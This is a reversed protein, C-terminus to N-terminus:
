RKGKLAIIPAIVLYIASSILLAIGVGFKDAFHGILTATIAAFVTQIQSNVSLTSALISQDFKESLYGVGVPKRLNELIFVPIFFLISLIIWEKFYLAGCIAGFSLGTILTINLPLNRKEKFQDSFRGANRAATSTLLYLFFYVIGIIIAAKQKSELYTLIPISIALTKLLTQLYDKAGTFYGSFVSLNLVAKIVSWHKSTLIFRASLEKLSPWIDSIKRNGSEGDLEKPYSLMLILDLIYPIITYLFVPAYNTSFYVIIAALISSVASGFQSWSRTHGYYHVKLHVLDRQSLYSFIMAKHTGSRFADGISYFIMALAFFWYTNALNFITFCSIYAIFCFVMTKRRGIVDAMIGSPIELINRGMERIAYLTGIQLFTMGKELLFLILFPEYFKQNKLFGYLCFKYYQLNKPIKVREM